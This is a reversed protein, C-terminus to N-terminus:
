RWRWLKPMSSFLLSISELGRCEHNLGCSKPGVSKLLVYEMRVRLTNPPMSGMGEPRLDSARVVLSGVVRLESTM